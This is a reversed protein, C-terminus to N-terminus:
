GGSTVAMLVRSCVSDVPEGIMCPSVVRAADEPVHKKIHAGLLPAAPACRVASSERQRERQHYRNCHDDCTVYDPWQQGSSAVNGALGSAM